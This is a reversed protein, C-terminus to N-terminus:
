VRQFLGRFVTLWMIKLDLTVSWDVKPPEANIGFESAGTREVTGGLDLALTMADERVWKAIAEAMTSQRRTELTAEAIQSM